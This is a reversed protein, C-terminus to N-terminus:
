WDKVNGAPAAAGQRYERQDRVIRRAADKLHAAAEEPTLPTLEDRDPLPRLNGKGPTEDNTETANKNGAQEARGAAQVKGDAPPETNGFEASPSHRDRHDGPPSSDGSEPDKPPTEGATKLAQQWLLRALELNRAAWGHLDQDADSHLLCKEYCIMAETLGKVDNVAAQRLLCNGLNYLATAGRPGRAGELARRYHLEAEHYRGARYLAAGENFAVLGPDNAREEAMGYLQLAKDYDAQAFAANGQRILDEAQRAPGASLLAVTFLPYVLKKMEFTQATQGRAEPSRTAQM